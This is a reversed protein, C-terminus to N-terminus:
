RVRRQELLTPGTTRKLEAGLELMYDLQQVVSRRWRENEDLLRRAHASALEARNFLAQLEESITPERVM